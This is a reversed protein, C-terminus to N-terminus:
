EGVRGREAVVVSMGTMVLEAVGVIVAIGGDGARTESKLKLTGLKAGKFKETRLSSGCGPLPAPFNSVSSSSLIRTPKAPIKSTTPFPKVASSDFARGASLTFKTFPSVSKPFIRSPFSTARSLSSENVFEKVAPPVITLRPHDDKPNRNQILFSTYNSAPSLSILDSLFTITNYM